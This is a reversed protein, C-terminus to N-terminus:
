IRSSRTSTATPLQSLSKSTTEAMPSGPLPARGNSRHPTHFLEDDRLRRRKAPPSPHHLPLCGPLAGALVSLKDGSSTRRRPLRHLARACRRPLPRPERRQAAPGAPFTRASASLNWIALNTRLSFSPLPQISGRRSQNVTKLYARIALVDDGDAHVVSLRRSCGSGNHGRGAVAGLRIRRRDVDHRTRQRAINPSVIAGFPTKLESGAFPKTDPRHCALCGAARYKGRAIAHTTLPTVPRRSSCEGVLGFCAARDAGHATRCAAEKVFRNRLTGIGLNSEVIDGAKVDPSTGDTGMWIVDGPRTPVTM